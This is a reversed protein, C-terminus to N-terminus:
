ASPLSAQLRTHRSAEDPEQSPTKETDEEEEEEEQGPMFVACLPVQGLLTELQEQNKALLATQVLPAVGSSSLASEVEEQSAHRLQADRGMRELFDIVDMM